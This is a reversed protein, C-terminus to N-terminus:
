PSSKAQVNIAALSRTEISAPGTLDTTTADQRVGKAIAESIDTVLAQLGQRLWTFPPRSRPHPGFFSFHLRENKVLKLVRAGHRVRESIYEDSTVLRDILGVKIADVGLWVDGTSVEEIRKSLVPRAAVVHQKFAVHTKDIVSQLAAIGEKTVDGILGLPAKNKGAKFVYPRVGWSQLVEQINISSGYVGISGLVAFPAAYLRSPTSTCAMMYGGSAAVKDVCITLIVGPEQRLRLLQQAALGYDAASGGPSELLVIVELEAATTNLSAVTINTTNKSAQTGTADAAQM